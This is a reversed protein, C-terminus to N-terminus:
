VMWNVRNKNRKGRREWGGWKGKGKEAGQSWGGVSCMLRRLVTATDADGGTNM